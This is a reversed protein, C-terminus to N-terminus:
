PTEDEDQDDDVDSADHEIEEGADDEGLEEVDSGEEGDFADAALEVEGKVDWRHGKAAESVYKVFRMVGKDRLVVCFSNWAPASSFLIGGDDEGDGSQYVAPDHVAKKGVSPLDKSSALEDDDVAM